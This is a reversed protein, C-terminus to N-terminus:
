EIKEFRLMLKNGVPSALYVDEQEIGEDDVVYSTFNSYVAAIM